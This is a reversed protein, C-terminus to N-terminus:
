VMAGQQGELFPLLREADHIDRGSKGREEGEERGGGSPLRDDERM